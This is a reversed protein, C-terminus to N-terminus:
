LKDRTPLGCVVAVFTQAEEFLECVLLDQVFMEIESLELGLHLLNFIAALLRTPSDVVERAHTYTDEVTLFRADHTDM